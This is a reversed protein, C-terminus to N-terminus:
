FKGINTQRGTLWGTLVKLQDTSKWLSQVCMRVNYILVGPSSQSASSVPITTPEVSSVNAHHVTTSTTFQQSITTNTNTFIMTIIPISSSSSLAELIEAHLLIIIYYYNHVYM